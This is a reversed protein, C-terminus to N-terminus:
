SAAANTTPITGSSDKQGLKYHVLDTKEQHFFRDLHWLYVSDQCGCNSRSTLGRAVGLREHWSRASYLSQKSVPQYWPNGSGLHPCVSVVNRWIVHAEFQMPALNSLYLSKGSVLTTSVSQFSCFLNGLKVSRKRRSQWDQPYNEWGAWVCGACILLSWKECAGCRLRIRSIPLRFLHPM